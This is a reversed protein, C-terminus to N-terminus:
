LRRREPVSGSPERIERRRYRQAAAASVDGSAECRGERGAGRAGGASRRCPRVTDVARRFRRSRGGEADLQADCERKPNGDASLVDTTSYGRVRMNLDTIRFPRLLSRQTEDVPHELRRQCYIEYRTACKMPCIWSCMSCRSPKTSGMRMRQVSWFTPRHTVGLERQLKQKTKQASQRGLATNAYVQFLNYALLTLIVHWLIPVQRTAHFGDIPWSESKLQRYGEEIEPRIQYLEILQKASLSLDTSAFCFYDIEGTKPDTKSVVCVNMPVGLEAWLGSLGCVWQIQQHKRTPHERWNGPNAEAHVVCAKFFNMDSKLGTCVDVQREKKFSTIDAGDLFGRDHLLTDGPHLHETAKRMPRSVTLDHAQLPGWGIGTIVAGQDLLSRL